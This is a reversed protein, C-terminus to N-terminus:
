LSSPQKIKIPHPQILTNIELGPIAPLPRTRRNPASHPRVFVFACPLCWTHCAPGERRTDVTRRRLLSRARRRAAPYGESPRAATHWLGRLHQGIINNHRSSIINHLPPGDDLWRVRDGCRGQRARAFIKRRRRDCMEASINDVIGEGGGGGGPHFRVAHTPPFSLIM